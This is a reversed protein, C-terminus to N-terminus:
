RRCSRRCTCRVPSRRRRRRAPSGPMQDQRPPYHYLTGKPPEIEAWIKFDRMSEFPPIDYGISANVLVEVNERQLLHTLLSKAASKNKSFGWIGWALPFFPLYRGKPGKPAQCNWLEAAV